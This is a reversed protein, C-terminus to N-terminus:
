EPKRDWAVGAVAEEDHPEDVYAEVLVQGEEVLRGANDYKKFNATAIVEGFPQPDRRITTLDVTVETRGEPTRKTDDKCAQVMGAEWQSRADAM